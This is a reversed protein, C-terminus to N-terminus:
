LRGYKRDDRKKEAMVTFIRYIFYVIFVALIGFFVMGYVQFDVISLFANYSPNLSIAITAAGYVLFVMVLALLRAFWKLPEQEPPLSNGWYIFMFMMAIPILVLTFIMQDDGQVTIVGSETGNYNYTGALTVNFLAACVTTYSSGSLNQMNVSSSNLVTGNICGGVPLYSSIIYCPISTQPNFRSCEPFATIMPILILIM